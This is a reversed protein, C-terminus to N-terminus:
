ILRNDLYNVFLSITKLILKLKTFNTCNGENVNTPVLTFVFIVEINKNFTISLKLM